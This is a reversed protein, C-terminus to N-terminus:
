GRDSGNGIEDRQTRGISPVAHHAHAVVDAEERGCGDTPEAALMTTLASVPSALRGVDSLRHWVSGTVETHILGVAGVVPGTITSISAFSVGVKATNAVADSAIASSGAFLRTNRRKVSSSFSTLPAVLTATSFSCYALTTRRTRHELVSLSSPEITVANEAAPARNGRAQM